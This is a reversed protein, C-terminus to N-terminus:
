FKELTLPNRGALEVMIDAKETKAEALLTTGDFVMANNGSGPLQSFKSRIRGLIEKAWALAMRRLLNYADDDQDLDLNKSKYKVGIIHDRVPTPYVRFRRGDVIEWSGWVGYTKELMERSALYSWFTVPSEYIDVALDTALLYFDSFLYQNVNGMAGLFAPKYYIQEIALADDPWDYESNLGHGLTYAYITKGLYRAVINIAAKIAEDLQEKTLEVKVTPYGLMVLIWRRIEDYQADKVEYMSKDKLKNLINIGRPEPSHWYKTDPAPNAHGVGASSNGIYSFKDIDAM